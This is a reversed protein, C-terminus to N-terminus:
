RETAARVQKAPAIIRSVEGFGGGGLREILRYGPIPESGPEIRVAMDRDKCRKRETTLLSLRTAPPGSGPQAADSEIKFKARNDPRRM